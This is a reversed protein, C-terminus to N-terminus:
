GPFKGFSEKLWRHFGHFGGVPDAYMLICQRSVINIDPENLNKLTDKDACGQQLWINRIGKAKAEEILNLTTDNKTNIVLASVGEPLESVTHYCKRGQYNDMNPNVPYVEFGKKNLERFIANGFKQKARSVGAVAIKDQELFSNISQMTTM